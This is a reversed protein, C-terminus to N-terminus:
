NENIKNIDTLCQEIIQKIYDDKAVKKAKMLMNKAENEKGDYYYLKSARFLKIAKTNGSTNNAKKLLSNLLKVNHNIYVDYIERAEILITKNNENKSKALIKELSNLAELSKDKKGKKGYYSLKLTNYEVSEGKSLKSHDIFEMSKEIRDQKNLIMYGKLRFHEITGSNFLIKLHPNDLLQLYLAPNNDILLVKNLETVTHRRLKSLNFILVIVILTVIVFWKIM